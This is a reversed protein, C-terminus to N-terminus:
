GRSGHQGDMSGKVMKRLKTELGDAERQIDELQGTGRQFHTTWLVPTTEGEGILGSFNRPLLWVRLEPFSVTLQFRWIRKM